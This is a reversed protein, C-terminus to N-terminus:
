RYTLRSELKTIVYQYMERSNSDYRSIDKLLQKCQLNSKVFSIFGDNNFVHNVLELNESEIAESLLNHYFFFKDSINKGGLDVLFYDMIQICTPNKCECALEILKRCKVMRQTVNNLPRQVDALLTEIIFKIISLYGSSILKKFYQYSSVSDILSQRDEIYLNLLPNQEVPFFVEILANLKWQESRNMKIITFLVPKGINRRSTPLASFLNFEEAWYDYIDGCQDRILYSSVTLQLCQTFLFNLEEASTLLFKFKEGSMVLDYFIRGEFSMDRYRLINKIIKYYQDSYRPLLATINSACGKLVISLIQKFTELQNNKVTEILIQLYIEKNPPETQCRNIFKEIQNAIEIHGHSAAAIFSSLYNIKRYDTHHLHQSIFNLIINVTKSKGHRCAMILGEKIKKSEYEIFPCELCRNLIAIKGDEDTLKREPQYLISALLRKNYITTSLKCGLDKKHISTPDLSDVGCMKGYKRVLYDFHILNGSQSCNMIANLFINKVIKFGESEIKFRLLKSILIMNYSKKIHVFATTLANAKLENLQLFYNVIKLSGSGKKLGYNVNSLWDSHGKSHLYFRINDVNSFYIDVASDLQCLIDLHEVDLYNILQRCTVDIPLSSFYSAM